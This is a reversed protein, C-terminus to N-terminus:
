GQEGETTHPNSTVELNVMDVHTDIAYVLERMSLIEEEDTGGAQNQVPPPPPPPPTQYPIKEPNRLPSDEAMAM